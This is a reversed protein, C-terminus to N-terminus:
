PLEDHAPTQDFWWRQLSTVLEEFGWARARERVDASTVESLGKDRVLAALFDVMAQEGVQNEAVIWAFPARAYTMPGYVRNGQFAALSSAPAVDLVGENLAERYRTDLYRNVVDQAAAAGLADRYYWLSAYQALSEDVVSDSLSSNGVLAHFWQHAVEHAIVFTGFGGDLRDLYEPDVIVLGPFEMGAAGTLPALVVELERWPLPGLRRQLSSMSGVTETLAQRLAATGTNAPGVVRVGDADAIAVDLALAALPLDRLATGRAWVCRLDAVVDPCEGDQGGTVVIGESLVRVSWIAAPFAGVDGWPIMPGDDFTLLPLGHGVMTVSSSRALLGFGATGGDDSIQTREPVTYDFIIRVLVPDGAGISTPLAVTLTAALADLTSEVARGDVRVEVVPGSGATLLVQATPLFRLVLSNSQARRTAIVLDGSVASRQEDITVVGVYVPRETAMAGHWAADTLSLWEVSAARLGASLVAAAGAAEAQDPSGLLTVDPSSAPATTAVDAEPDITSTSDPSTAGLSQVSSADIPNRDRTIALLLALLLLAAGVVALLRLAVPTLRPPKTTPESEEPQDQSM